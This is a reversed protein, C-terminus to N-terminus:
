EDKEIKKFNYRLLVRIPLTKGNRSAPRWQMESIVKKVSEDLEYGAWRTIEIRTIKGKEDLDVTAEVTATISYFDAIRTYNPRLRKYPLPSKFNKADPSDEAPLEELENSPSEDLESIKAVQTQYLIIDKLSAISDILQKDAKEASESEFSKLTWFVLRGTRSSVIYIAAYAEFYDSKVLSTRRVNESKLIIFFDCGIAKGLNKAEETTLNYLNEYALANAANSALDSDISNIKEALQATLKNEEPSILALKQSLIGTPFFWLGFVLTWFSFVLKNIIFSRYKM